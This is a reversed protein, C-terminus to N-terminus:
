PAREGGNSAGAIANRMQTDSQLNRMQYYEMIGIRGDRFAQSIAKPVEAESLVLQARNEEVRARM